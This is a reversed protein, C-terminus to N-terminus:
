AGSREPRDGAAAQRSPFLWGVPFGAPGAAKQSGGRCLRAADAQSFALALDLDTRWRRLLHGAPLSAHGYVHGRQGPDGPRSPQEAGAPRLGRPQASSGRGRVAVTQTGRSGQGGCQAQQLRPQCPGPAPLQHVRGLLKVHANLTATSAMTGLTCNRSMGSTTWSLAAPECLRATRSPLHETHGNAHPAETAASRTPASATLQPSARAASKAVRITPPERACAAGDPPGSCGMRFRLAERFRANQRTRRMGLGRMTWMTGAGVGGPSLRVEEQCSTSGAHLDAAALADLVM